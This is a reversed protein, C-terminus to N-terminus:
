VENSVPRGRAARGIDVPITSQQVLVPGWRSSHGGRKGSTIFGENQGSTSGFLMARWRVNDILCFVRSPLTMGNYSLTIRGAPLLAVPQLDPTPASM